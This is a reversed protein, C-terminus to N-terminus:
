RAKIDRTRRSPWHGLGCARTDLVDCREDVGYRGAFGDIELVMLIVVRLVVAAARRNAARDVAEMAMASGLPRWPFVKERGTAKCALAAGMSMAWHSQVVIFPSAAMRSWHMPMIASRGPAEPLCVPPVPLLYRRRSM